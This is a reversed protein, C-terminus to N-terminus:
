TYSIQQRSKRLLDRFLPLGILVAVIVTCYDAAMQAHLLGELGWLRSFLLLFPINFLCQRGLSVIMARFAQGTAQFTVMIAMQVGLIPIAFAQAHLFRVGVDIIQADSTFAGVFPTSLWVFPVLLVLCIGTGSLLTFKFASLMRKINGAGYNYGAFPMYGTVYGAIIMFVIQILKGAVGYASIVHDGFGSAVNNLIINAFSMILTSLSNPLGIKIVETFIKVSPRCDSFRISLPLKGKMYVIIYYIVGVFNGIVTAIAAGAVGQHFVLICVPDLIINLVTGIIIGIVSEKVKGVARLMNSLIVQLTIVVSFGVIIQLYSRTPGITADSTGLLNLIPNMFFFCLVAVIVTIASSIYVSVASTKRVEDHQKAGLCRSIYSPAGNGFVNGIAQIVMFVPFALSIAGLQVPDDLLGIFYTDTLNYLLSVINSLITPISLKLIAKPVSASELLTINEDKM